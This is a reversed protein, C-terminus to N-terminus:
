ASMNKLGIIGAADKVIVCNVSGAEIDSLMQQFAPRHFNMGTAGNDIYTDYVFIEPKSELFHNLILKQTEISISGTQKDEVSLRIYLAARITLDAAPTATQQTKRSKRAM